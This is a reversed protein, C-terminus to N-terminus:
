FRSSSIATLDSYVPRDALLLLYCIRSEGPNLGTCDSFQSTTDEYFLFFSECLLRRKPRVQENTGLIFYLQYEKVTIKYKPPNDWFLSSATMEKLVKAGHNFEGYREENM